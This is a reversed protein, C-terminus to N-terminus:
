MFEEDSSYQFQGCEDDEENDDDVGVPIHSYNIVQETPMFPVKEDSFKIYISATKDLTLRPWERYKRKTLRLIVNGGKLDHSCMRPEILGYLKLIAREIKKDVYEIAIDFSFEDIKVGYDKCDLAKVLIYLYVENQRWEIYPHTYMNVLSSIPRINPIITTSNSRNLSTEVLEKEDAKESYVSYQYAHFLKQM